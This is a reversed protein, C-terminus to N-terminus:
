FYYKFHQSNITDIEATRSDAKSSLLMTKLFLYNTHLYANKLFICTNYGKTM